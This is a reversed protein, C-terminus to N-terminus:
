CVCCRLYFTSYLVFAYYKLLTTIICGYNGNPNVHGVTRFIGTIPLSFDSLLDQNRKKKKTIIKKKTSQDHHYWQGVTLQFITTNPFSSLNVVIKKKLTLVWISTEGNFCGRHADLVMSLFHTEKNM